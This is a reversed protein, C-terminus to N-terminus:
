QISSNRVPATSRDLMFCLIVAFMTLVILLRGAHVALLSERCYQALNSQFIATAQTLVWALRSQVTGSNLFLTITFGTTHASYFGASLLLWPKNQWWIELPTSPGHGRWNARTHISVVSM